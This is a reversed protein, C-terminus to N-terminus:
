GNNKISSRQSLIVDRIKELIYKVSSISDDNAPIFYDALTPNANTDSIGIVKIGKEKAEKIALHDKVMDCVFIADPLKEMNKIGGFKKELKQIKKEIELREKKTYKEFFGEKMKNELDKLYEVSKKIVEFNTFTGGIWRENVYPCNLQQAIEKVLSKIHPKTGVFLIVKNQLALEKIFHLTEEFKQKIKELDIIHISNRTGFIFPFMKPHIKSSKHGFHLGVKAMEEINLNFINEKEM